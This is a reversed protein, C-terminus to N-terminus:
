SCTHTESNRVKLTSLDALTTRNNHTPYLLKVLSNGLLFYAHSALSSSALQRSLLFIASTLLTIVQRRPASNCM